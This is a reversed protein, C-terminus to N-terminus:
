YLLTEVRIRFYAALKVATELNTKKMDRQKEKLSSLTAYPINTEKSVKSISLHYKQLVKELISSSQRENNFEEVVLSFDMEHYLDFMQYMKELPLYLFMAEFALHTEKLITLYAEAAWLCQRYVPVENLPISDSYISKVLQEDSMFLASDIVDKELVLFFSSHSIYHEIVNFTYKTKYGFSLVRELMNVYRYFESSEM